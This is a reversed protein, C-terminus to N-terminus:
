LLDDIIKSLMEREIAEMEQHVEKEITKQDRNREAIDKYTKNGYLRNQIKRYLYRKYLNKYEEKGLAQFLIKTSLSQM